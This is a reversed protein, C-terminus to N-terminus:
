VTPSKIKVARGSSSEIAGAPARIALDGPVTLTTKGTGQLVGIVNWAGDQGLDLVRDGIAPEYPCALVIM